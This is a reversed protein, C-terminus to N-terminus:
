TIITQVWVGHQKSVPKTIKPFDEFRNEFQPDLGRQPQIIGESPDDLVMPFYLHKDKIVAAFNYNYLLVFITKYNSTVAVHPVTSFSAGNPLNLGVSNALKMM